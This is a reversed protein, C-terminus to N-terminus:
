IDDFCFGSRMWWPRSSSKVHSWLLWESDCCVACWCVVSTVTAILV